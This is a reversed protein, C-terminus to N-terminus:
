EVRREVRHALHKGLHGGTLVDPEPPQSSTLGVLIGDTDEGEVDDIVLHESYIHKDVTTNLLVDDLYEGDEPEPVQEEQYGAGHPDEGPGELERGGADPVEQHLYLHVAVEAVVSVGFVDLM